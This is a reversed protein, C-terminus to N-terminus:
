SFLGKFQGRQFQLSLMVVTTSMLVLAALEVTATVLRVRLPIRSTLVLAPLLVCAPLLVPVCVAYGKEGIEALLLASFMGPVIALEGIFKGSAYSLWFLCQLLSPVM